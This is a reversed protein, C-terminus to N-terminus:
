IHNFQSMREDCSVNDINNNEINMIENKFEQIWTIPKKITIPNYRKMNLIKQRLSSFKRPKPKFSNETKVDSNGISRCTKYIKNLLNM